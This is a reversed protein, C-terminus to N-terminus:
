SKSHIAIVGDWNSPPIHNNQIIYGLLFDKGLDQPPVLHLKEYAVSWDGRLFADLAAEYHVLHEDGLVPDQAAPPLLESVTLPTELGYPRVTALRRCRAQDAPITARVVQATAEDILVPVRVVKTLGELRSALNIVPGFVTVKSQDAPGIQGAVARGSAIGIGAQFGALPHGPQRSFGLFTGRIDLAALCARRVMDPEPVPWGWFGFASDGQVDAVVGDHEFISRTMVGLAQSVRNLVALLDHASTEVKRSFGRLDCFLATVETLRPELATEPDTGALVRLVQPSFFHSLVSQRHQLAQLQRLSGLVSAVLEAFKVEEGLDKEGRGALPEGNGRVSQAGAAYIAWGQCGDGPVPTCLAWDFNGGLTFRQDDEPQEAAWIHVVSAHLHLVAERVLRRSPRFPGAGPLRCEAHLVRVAPEGSLASEAAVVAIADARRMGALLLSVLHDFLEDDNTASAIVDTLGRLAEIRHPADRYPIRQLEPKSVAWSQLLPGREASELSTGASELTFRTRGIVFTEGPGLSFTEADDGRHFIPNRARPLRYVHLRGNRWTLEAHRRSLAREWPADWDSQGRGLSVTAGEPLPRQWFQQPEPGQAILEAM